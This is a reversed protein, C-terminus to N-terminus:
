KGTKTSSLSSGASVLHFYVSSMLYVISVYLRYTHLPPKLGQMFYYITIITFLLLLGSGQVVVTHSSGSM